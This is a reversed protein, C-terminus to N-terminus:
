YNENEKPIWVRKGDVLKWTKGRNKDGCKLKQEVSRNRVIDAIKAAHDQSKPKGTLAKSIKARREDTWSEPSSCSNKIRASKEDETLLNLIKSMSESIKTKSEETQSLLWNPHGVMKKRRKEIGVPGMNGGDGEEPKLNAWQNSNVIDWLESYYIGMRKIEEHSDTELLIETSVNNGHKALHNVWWIGSGKYKEPDRKTKGLYKLGTTNHTKVYLYITM